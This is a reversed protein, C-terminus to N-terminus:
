PNRTKPSEGSPPQKATSGASHAAGTPTGYLEAVLKLYEAIPPLGVRQRREDLADPAEVEGQIRWKGDRFEVQTGYVQKEGEALRIRDTLLALHNPAVEGSGAAEMLKLCRKQFPRDGVAHQVILFAAGAGDAGVQTRGPWGSQEVHRKLWELNDADVRAMAEVLDRGREAFEPSGISLHNQKGFEVAKMRVDQDKASRALLEARLEPDRPDSPAAVAPTSQAAAPVALSMCVLLCAAFPAIGALNMM